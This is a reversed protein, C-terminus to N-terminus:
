RPIRFPWAVTSPSDRCIRWRCSRTRAPRNDQLNEVILASLGLREHLERVFLLGGDSTVCSDGFDVKLLPQLLASITPKTARGM